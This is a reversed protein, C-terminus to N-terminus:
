IFTVPAVTNGAEYLADVWGYAAMNGSGDFTLGATGDNVATQLTQLNTLDTSLSSPNGVNNNIHYNLDTILTSLGNKIDDLTVTEKAVNTFVLSGDVIDMSVIGRIVKEFDADSISISSAQAHNVWFDKQEDDWANKFHQGSNVTLIYKAM